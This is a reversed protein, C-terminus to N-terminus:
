EAIMEIAFEGSGLDWGFDAGGDAGLADVEGRGLDWGAGVRLLGGFDLICDLSGKEIGKAADREEAGDERQEASELSKEPNLWIARRGRCSWEALM